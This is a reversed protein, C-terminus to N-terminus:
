TSVKFKLDRRRESSSDPSNERYHSRANGGRTRVSTRLDARASADAVSSITPKGGSPTWTVSTATGRSM